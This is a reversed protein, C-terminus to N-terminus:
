NDLSYDISKIIERRKKLSKTKALEIIAIVLHKAYESAKGNNLNTLNQPEIDLADATAKLNKFKFIDKLRNGLENVSIKDNVVLCDPCIIEEDTYKWGAKELLKKKDREVVLVSYKECYDCPIQFKFQKKSQRKPFKITGNFKKM